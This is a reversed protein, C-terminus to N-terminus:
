AFVRAGTLRRCRFASAYKRTVSVGRSSRVGVFPKAAPRLQPLPSAILDVVSVGFYDALTDLEDLRWAVRGSLRQNVGSAAIGLVRALTTQNEGRAALAYRVM